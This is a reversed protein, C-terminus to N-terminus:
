VGLLRTLIGLLVLVAALYGWALLGGFPFVEHFTRVEYVVRPLTLVDLLSFQERVGLALWFKGAAGSPVYGVVYYRGTAPLTYTQMPFQWSRTGTFEEHFLEPAAANETNYVWGGYGEPVAFPLDVPALGEGLLAVAPRYDRLPELEPVGLQIMVQQGAAGDFVLWIRQVAETVQQYAVQSVGPDAVPVATEATDHTGATPIYRHAWAGPAALVVAVGVWYWARWEM